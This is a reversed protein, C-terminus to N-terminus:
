RPIPMSIVSRMRLSGYFAPMVIAAHLILHRSANM